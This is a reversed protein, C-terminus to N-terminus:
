VAAAKQGRPRPVAGAAPGPQLAAQEDPTLVGLRRREEYSLFDVALRRAIYDTVSSARPIEPDNTMGSPEYASELLAEVVEGIPVGHRLGLNITHSLADALGLLTSGHKGLRVIVEILAGDEGVATILYGQAGGVEFRRTVGPRSHASVSAM